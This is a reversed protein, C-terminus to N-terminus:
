RLPPVASLHTKSYEKKLHGELMRLYTMVLARKAQEHTVPAPHRSIREAVKLAEEHTM